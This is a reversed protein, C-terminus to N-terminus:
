TRFILNFVSIVEVDSLNEMGSTRLLDRVSPLLGVAPDMEGFAWFQADALMMEMLLRVPSLATETTSVVQLAAQLLTSREHECGQASLMDARQLALIPLTSSKPLRSDFVSHADRYRGCAQAFAAEELAARQEEQLLTPLLSPFVTWTGLSQSLTQAMEM